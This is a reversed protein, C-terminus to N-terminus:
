AHTGGPLTRFAARANRAAAEVFDKSKQVALANEHTGSKRLARRADRLSQCRTSTAAALMKHHAPLLPGIM